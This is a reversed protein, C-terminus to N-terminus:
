LDTIYVLSVGNMVVAARKKCPKVGAYKCHQKGYKEVQEKLFKSGNGGKPEYYLIIWFYNRLIMMVKHTILYSARASDSKPKASIINKM